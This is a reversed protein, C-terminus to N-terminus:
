KCWWSGLELLDSNHSSPQDNSVIQIYFSICLTVHCYLKVICWTVFRMGLICETAYGDDHQEFPTDSHFSVDVGEQIM